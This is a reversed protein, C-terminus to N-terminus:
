GLLSYIDNMVKQVNFCSAGKLAMSAYEKRMEESLLMKKMKKYIDEEDELTLCGYKGEDLIENTGCIATAVVPIGLCLAECVVLPYGEAESTNWYIDAVKMYAYSPKVFGKLQVCDSIGFDNIQKIMEDQLHGEGLIWLHFDLDDEKLRKVVKLARDYRKQPNLRGVMCITLKEKKINKANSLACITNTDILNYQVRFKSSEMPYLENFKRKAEESVFIIRDMKQYARYEEKENQFFISTWHKTKLDIHVWSINRKAKYCIYSHIKVAAGELFSIITDYQKGRLVYLIILRHVLAHYWGYCHMIRLLRHWRELWINSSGLMTILKVQPPVDKLYVGQNYELLLSVDYTVYDFNRLIDMLVKEAGGSPLDPMLFLIRKKM